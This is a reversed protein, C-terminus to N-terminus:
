LAILYEVSTQVLANGIINLFKDVVLVLNDVRIAYWDVLRIM